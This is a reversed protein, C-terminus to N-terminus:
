VTTICSLDLLVPSTFGAPAQDCRLGGDARVTPVRPRHSQDGDAAAPDGQGDYALTRRHARM